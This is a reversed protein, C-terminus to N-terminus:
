TSPAYTPDLVTAGNLLFHIILIDSLKVRVRAIAADVLGGLGTVM